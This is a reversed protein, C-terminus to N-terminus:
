TRLEVDSHAEDYGEQWLLQPDQWFVWYDGSLSKRWQGALTQIVESEMREGPEPPLIRRLQPTTLVDDTQVLSM